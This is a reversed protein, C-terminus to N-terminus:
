ANASKAILAHSRRRLRFGARRARESAVDDMLDLFDSDRMIDEVRPSVKKTVGCPLLELVPLAARRSKVAAAVTADDGGGVVAMTAGADESQCVGTYSMGCGPHEGIVVSPVLMGRRPDYGSNCMLTYLLSMPSHAGDGGDVAQEGGAPVDSQQSAGGGCCLGCRTKAGLARRCVCARVKENGESAQVCAVCQRDSAM